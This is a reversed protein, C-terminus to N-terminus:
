PPQALPGRPFLAKRYPMFEPQQRSCASRYLDCSGNAAKCQAMGAKIGEEVSPASRMDYKRAGLVMVACANACCLEVRCTKSGKAHRENRAAQEAAARDPRDV